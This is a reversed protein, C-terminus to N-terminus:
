VGNTRCCSGTVNCNCNRVCVCVHLLTVAFLKIVSNTSIVFVDRLKVVESVRKVILM